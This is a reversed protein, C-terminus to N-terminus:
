SADETQIGLQHLTDDGEDKIEGRWARVGELLFRFALVLSGYPIAGAAFWKPIATGSVIGAAGESNVWTHVHDMVSRSSLVLIGLCFIASVVQGVAAVKPRLSEPWLKSGIDLALHRRDHAALSAGLLSLWLLLSLSIPQAQIIGNPMAKVFLWGLLTTGVGAGLGGVLSNSSGRTALAMGAVTGVIAVMGLSAVVPWGSEGVAGLVWEPAALPNDMASVARHAVALFMVVGMVLLILWVLLKELRFLAEDFRTLLEM